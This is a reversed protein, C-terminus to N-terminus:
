VVRMWVAPCATNSWATTAKFDAANLSPMPSSFPLTMTCHSFIGTSITLMFVGPMSLTNIARMTTSAGGMHLALWYQTNAAITLSVASSKLGVSAASLTTSVVLPSGTPYGDADSAYVGAQFTGSASATAVNAGIADISFSRGFSVPYLRLQNQTISTTTLANSTFAGVVHVGAFPAIPMPNIPALVSGGGGGGGAPTEWAGDGRLYTSSSPTGTASIKAVTVAANDITWTAGSNSVTIDGKDGDSIGAGPEGQPGQPGVPGTAGTEGQIGQPGQPGTPGAPGTDGTDGKLGQAGQPGTDGTDGKLGQPGTAGTLGTEGQPGAPGTAGAPGQPGTPGTDGTDGKLGQPGQPGTPGAPGTEGQIGQPGQPGTAGTLGTEGQPGQPGTDGTDGKLGQPGTAGTDGQPGQPGQPGTAGQPGQPGAPGSAYALANWAAGTGIKFRETDTELGLEGVALIPNAATWEAATGRRLQIRTAM